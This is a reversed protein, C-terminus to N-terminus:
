PIFPKVSSSLLTTIKLSVGMFLCHLAKSSVMENIHNNITKIKLFLWIVSEEQKLKM